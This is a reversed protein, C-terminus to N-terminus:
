TCLMYLLFWGSVKLWDYVNTYIVIVFTCTYKFSLVFSSQLKVGLVIIPCQLNLCLCHNIVQANATDALCMYHGRSFNFSIFISNIHGGNTYLVFNMYFLFRGVQFSYFLVYTTYPFKWLISSTRVVLRLKTFGGGGGGFFCM